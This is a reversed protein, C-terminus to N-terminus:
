RAARLRDCRQQRATRRERKAQEARKRLLPKQAELNAMLDKGYRALSPSHAPHPRRQECACQATPM